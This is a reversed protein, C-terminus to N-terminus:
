RAVPVPWDKSYKPTQMPTRGDRHDNWAKITRFACERIFVDGAYKQQKSRMMWNSLLNASASWEGRVQGDNRLVASFFEVAEAADARM